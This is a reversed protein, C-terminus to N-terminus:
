LRQLFDDFAQFYGAKLTVTGARGALSPGSRPGTAARARIADRWAQPSQPDLYTVHDGGQERFPLIDAAIVPTGAALAEAVPLGFGEAFSPALLACCHDLLIRYDRTPLGAVEIVHGRAAEQELAAIVGASNWGRKGVIVLKPAGAGLKDVLDRWISLLLLHNKRPEITGCAVFFQIGALRSDPPAPETFIEDVPLGMRLVPLDGVRLSQEVSAGAVVAAAGRRALLDLRRAHRAPESPWFWDPRELPLLDHIFFIPRIDLRRDLWAVHPRWDLPFNAANLYFAHKPAQTQLSDGLSPAYRLLARAIDIFRSPRPEVIRALRRAAIGPARLRAVIEEYAISCGNRAPTERWTADVRELADHSARRSLLRPSTALVPRRHKLGCMPFFM